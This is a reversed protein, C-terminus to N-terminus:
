LAKERECTKTLFSILAGEEIVAREQAVLPLYTGRASFRILVNGM